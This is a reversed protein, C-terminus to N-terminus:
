EFLSNDNGGKLYNKYFYLAYNVGDTVAQSTITAATIAQIENDEIPASKVVILPIAASKSTYQDIFPTEGAKAGLGPTETQRLIKVGTIKGFIDIGVLMDIGGSYGMQSVGIIYGAVDGRMDFGINASIIKDSDYDAFESAEFNIAIPLIEQMSKSMVNQRQIEIPSKTINHVFGLCVASILTIMFLSLAPKLIDRM